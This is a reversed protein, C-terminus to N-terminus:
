AIIGKSKLDLLLQGLVDALKAVDATDADLTRDTDVNAVTYGPGPLVSTLNKNADTAVIRNATLGTLTAGTMTPSSSSTLEKSANTTVVESPTLGSLTLGTLTPSAQWEPAVGTGMSAIVAGAIYGEIWTLPLAGPDIQNVRGQVKAVWQNLEELQRPDQLNDLRGMIYIDETM